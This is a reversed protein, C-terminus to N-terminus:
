LDQLQLRTLRYHDGIYNPILRQWTTLDSNESAISVFLMRSALEKKKEHMERFALRCPGCTTKWLDLM